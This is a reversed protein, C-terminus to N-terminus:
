MHQSGQKAMLAVSLLTLLAVMFACDLASSLGGVDEFIVLM